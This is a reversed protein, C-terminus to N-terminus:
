SGSRIIYILAFFPPMNEHATGGGQAAISHTHDTNTPQITGARFALDNLGGYGFPNGDRPPTVDSSQVTHGHSANASMAGTAGNHNHSPLQATTLTVTEAGGSTGKAHAASVGLIFRGRLDPVNAGVVAVLAPTSAASGDCTQWGAPAATGGFAIIGGIPTWGNAASPIVADSDVWVDGVGPQIPPEPQFAVSSGGGSGGGGLDGYLRLPTNLPPATTAGSTDTRLTTFSWWTGHDVPVDVIEYRAFGTIPPTDPDDTLVLSDGPELIAFSAQRNVGDTGIESVAWVRPQNGNGSIRVYGSGPNVGTVDGGWKYGIFGSAPIPPVFVLGDTGLTARNGVDSSVGTPGTPGAPGSPGTNGPPGQPGPVTSPAGPVGQDGKPGTSGQPGAPGTPGMAAASPTHCVIYALSWFPPMNQHAAGGGAATIGHNHDLSRDAAGNNISHNHDGAANGTTGGVTGSSGWTRVFSNGGTGSGGAGLFTAQHQHGGVGNISNSHLHDVGGGGTTAHAHSPMENASLTVTEAGGTQNRPHSASTGLIFRGRLDPVTPGVIAVLAPTAAAAGDCLQWGAPVTTGSWASVLGVPVAEASPITEGPPGQPGEPGPVTSDAGPPGVPGIPGPPGEPGAPGPVTSDAGQPGPPGTPGDPGLPGTPGQPGPVTSAAGPPGPPGAPGQAAQASTHCIVYALAYWPPMNEHPQDAGANHTPGHNHDIAVASSSALDSRVSGIGSQGDGAGATIGVNGPNFTVINVPHSHTQNHSMGQTDHAHGPMQQSTLTVTETGGTTHPTHPPFNSAGLIFRDRLDPVTAGILDILAQSGSAGGDCFQWGDPINALTGAWATITGVPIVDGADPTGGGGNNVSTVLSGVQLREPDWTGDPQQTWRSTPTSVETQSM